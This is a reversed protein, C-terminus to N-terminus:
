VGYERALLEARTLFKGSSNIPPAYSTQNPEDVALDSSGIKKNDKRIRHEDFHNVEGSNHPEDFHNVEEDFHNAGEDNQNVQAFTQPFSKLYGKKVLYKIKNPNDFMTYIRRAASNGNVFEIFIYGLAELHKLGRTITPVSVGLEDALAENSRFCCQKKFISLYGYLIKESPTLDKNGFVEIPINVFTIGVNDKNEEMKLGKRPCLFSGRTSPTTM